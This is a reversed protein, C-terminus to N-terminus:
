QHIDKLEEKAVNNWISKANIQLLQIAINESGNLLYIKFIKQLEM